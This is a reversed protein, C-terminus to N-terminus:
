KQIKAFTTSRGIDSPLKEVVNMRENLICIDTPELEKSFVRSLAPSVFFGLM